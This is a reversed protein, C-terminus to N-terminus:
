FDTIKLLTAHAFVIGRWRYIGCLYGEQSAEPLM